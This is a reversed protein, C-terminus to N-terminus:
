RLRWRKELTPNNLDDITKQDFTAHQNGAKFQSQAMEVISELRNVAQILRLTLRATDGTSAPLENLFTECDGIFTKNM